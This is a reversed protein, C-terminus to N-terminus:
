DFGLAKGERDRYWAKSLRPCMMRCQVAEALALNREGMRLCCLSRNAFLTADPPDM